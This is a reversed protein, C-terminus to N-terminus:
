SRFSDSLPKFMVSPDECSLMIPTKEAKATHGLIFFLGRLLARNVRLIIRERCMGPESKWAREGWCSRNTGTWSLLGELLWRPGNVKSWLYWYWCRLSCMCISFVFACVWWFACVLACILGCMKLMVMGNTKILERAHCLSSQIKLSKFYANWALPDDQYERSAKVYVHRGLETKSLM